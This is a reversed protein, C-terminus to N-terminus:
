GHGDSRSRDARNSKNEFSVGVGCVRHVERICVCDLFVGVVFVAYCDDLTDIGCGCIQGYLVM